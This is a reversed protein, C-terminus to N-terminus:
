PKVIVNRGKLEFNVGSTKLIELVQQLDSNGPIEGGFKQNGINGEFSVDIDYWRAIQRMISRLDTKAGFRFMGNKWAMVEEEDINGAVTIGEGIEAQEGPKIKVPSKNRGSLQVSGQLLTVKILAEDNYANVNFSTGLVYITVDGKSVRFPKAADTTIEFYAEGTISVTREKGTFAVPYTISSGANLWVKSGDTLTIQTVQSGRPNTLTNFTMERTDPTALQYTIVGSGSRKLQVDGQLVPQLINISDLPIHQGDSLTIVAKNNQPAKVNETSAIEATKQKNEFLLYSGAGFLLLISVALALRKFILTRKLKLQQRITQLMIEAREQENERTWEPVGAEWQESVLEALLDDQEASHILIFLEDKEAATYSEDVYRNFLYKLREGSKM